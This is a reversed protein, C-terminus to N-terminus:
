FRTHKYHEVWKGVQGRAYPPNIFVRWGPEAQDTPERRQKRRFQGPYKGYNHLGDGGLDFRVVDNAQIHSRDNSCPDLDVRGILKALWLPTCAGDRGDKEGSGGFQNVSQSQVKKSM